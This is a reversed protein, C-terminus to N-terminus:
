MHITTGEIDDDDRVGVQACVYKEMDDDLELRHAYNNKWTMMELELRHTYINKWTMMELELRHTYINKWTMMELELRHAYINKWTMVVLELRHAYINKWQRESDRVQLLGVEEIWFM